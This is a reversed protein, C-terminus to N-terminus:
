LSIPLLSNNKLNIWKSEADQSLVQNSRTEKSARESMSLAMSKLGMSKPTWIQRHPMLFTSSGTTNNIEQKTHQNKKKKPRNEKKDKLEKERRKGEAQM